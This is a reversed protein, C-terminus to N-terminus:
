SSSNNENNNNKNSNDRHGSLASSKVKRRAKRRALTGEAKKHVDEHEHLHLQFSVQNYTSRLITAIRSKGLGPLGPSAPPHFANKIATAKLTYGVEQGIRAFHSSSKINDKFDQSSCFDAIQGRLLKRQIKAESAAYYRNQQREVSGGGGDEGWTTLGIKKNEVTRSRRRMSEEGMDKSGNDDPDLTSQ